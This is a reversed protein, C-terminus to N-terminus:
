NRTRVATQPKKQRKEATNTITWLPIPSELHVAEILNDGIRAQNDGIRHDMSHVPFFEFKYVLRYYDSGKRIFTMTQYKTLSLRSTRAMGM